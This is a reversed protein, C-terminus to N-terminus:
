GVLRAFQGRDGVLRVVVERCGYTATSLGGHDVQETATSVGGGRPLRDVHETATSPGDGRPLRDVHETAKSPGDGRPLRDVHETATSPGGGRPLRDVDAMTTSCCSTTRVVPRCMM